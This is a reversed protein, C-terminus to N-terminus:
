DRKNVTYRIFGSYEAILAIQTRGTTLKNVSLNFWFFNHVDRLHTLEMNKGLMFYVRYEKFNWSQLRVIM